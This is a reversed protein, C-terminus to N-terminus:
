RTAAALATLSRSIRARVDDFAELPFGTVEDLYLRRNVEVMVSGVRRDVRFYASPVFTGRYPRDIEVSFGEAAFASRAAALLGPSTHFPDTGLDIDPRPSTPDLEFSRALSPFSHCDILFCSGIRELRDAVVAALERHHPHYFRQLLSERHAASPSERLWAGTSTREYVVGMGCAAMPERADDLFREPDVVLRSVPYVVRVAGPLDFLRDTLHDTMALLEAALDQDDLLLEARVDAPIATSSHPIHLVTDSRM